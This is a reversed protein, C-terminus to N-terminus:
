QMQQQYYGPFFFRMSTARDRFPDAPGMVRSKAQNSGDIALVEYNEQLINTCGPSDFLTTGYTKTDGPQPTFLLDTWTAARVSNNPMGYDVLNLCKGSVHIYPFSRRVTAGGAYDESNYLTVMAGM